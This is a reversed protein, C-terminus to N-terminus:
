VAACALQASVEKTQFASIRKLLSHQMPIAVDPVKLVRAAALPSDVALCSLVAVDPCYLVGIDRKLYYTV